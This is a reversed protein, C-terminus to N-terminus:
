RNRSCNMVGRQIWVIVDIWSFLVCTKSNEFQFLEGWFDDCLFFSSSLPLLFMVQRHILDGRLSYLLLYGSSTGAVIVRNDGFVLWELATISEADIPSLDPRIKLPPSAASNDSWSLLLITSRNALLLSHTDIACLLHPTEVLWNPKGAGLERLEDCAICGLETKYSRKAM